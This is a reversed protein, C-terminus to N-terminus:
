AAAAGAPRLALGELIAFAAVAAAQALVFAVGLANPAIPAFALIGISAAVWAWNIFVIERLWSRPITARRAMVLLFAAVPVLLVGAWFILGAPLGLLGALFGSGLVTLAAAAAGMAADALLTARLFPTNDITM